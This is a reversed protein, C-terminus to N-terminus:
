KATFTTDCLMDVTISQMAAVVMDSPLREDTLLKDSQETALAM